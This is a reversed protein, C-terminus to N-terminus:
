YRQITRFTIGLNESDDIIRVRFWVMELIGDERNYGHTYDYLNENGLEMGLADLYDILDDKDLTDYDSAPWFRGNLSFQPPADTTVIGGAYRNAVLFDMFDTLENSAPNLDTVSNVKTAMVPEKLGIPRQLKM